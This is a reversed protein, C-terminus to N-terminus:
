GTCEYWKLPGVGDGPAIVIQPFKGSKLKGAVIRGGISGVKIPRFQNGGTHKFWYNGALLDVKGDGDIDAAAMGEAYRFAGQDGTEGAQGSFIAVRPWPETHRPDAPIDALFITKAGQNWFALQPQGTGKFDGVVQDHHQTAGDNKIVHRK